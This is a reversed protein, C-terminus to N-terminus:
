GKVAGLQIGEVLQKQLVVFLVILPVICMVTAAMLLETQQGYSNQFSLMGVPLTRLWDDKIMVLPWFFSQYNGLFTFIALTVLGPRALPLIVELFIQVHTAGDIEAAEDLSPPITLMFQRLMFTGFASFAAPLILGTYTNVFHMAVMAQYNPIMLVLGPIMMTALYLLFVKDRLKWQIRSFAYAAMASTLVQLTTVWCAIFLSNLYWKPFDLDLLRKTVPDPRKKLVILYNSPQAQKAVFSPQEVESHPKFSACVMWVFPITMTCAFMVLVVYILIQRTIRLGPSPTM